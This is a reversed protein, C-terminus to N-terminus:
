VHDHFLRSADLDREDVRHDAFHLSVYGGFSSRGEEGRRPPLLAAGPIEIHPITPMGSRERSLAPARVSEARLGLSKDTIPM